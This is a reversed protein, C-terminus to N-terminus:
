QVLLKVKHHVPQLSFLYAYIANVEKDNMYKFKPMPAKLQGGGPTIGDIVAKSFESRSYEGIGTEKDPTLNAAHIKKGPAEKMTMGGQLYGKTLEPISYNVGTKNKSHCHYCGTVAALYYGYRITDNEDPRTIGKKYSVPKLFLRIGAKGLLNIHSEGITTDAATVAVDNSRLYLIIDNIDKDAMMPRMMYPMFKGNKAIGTKILYFLEADSYRPVIGNGASQTLNAAFLKGGIRPLEDLQRGIFKNVTHDYHCSGCVSYTLDKGNELSTNVLHTTFNDHTTGFYFRCGMIITASLIIVQIKKLNNTFWKLM